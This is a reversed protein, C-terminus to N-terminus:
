RLTPQQAPHFVRLTVEFTSGRGQGESHVQLQGGHAEILRRAIALGLGLGGHRRSSSGDGQRFPEFLQHATRPDLGPGSDSIEIVAREGTQREWARVCGGPPTFKIANELIHRLAVRLGAQSGLVWVTPADVSGPPGVPPAHELTIDAASASEGLGEVLAAMLEHVDVQEWEEPARPPEAAALLEEVLALQRRANRDIIALGREIEAPPMRTTRLLETWGLIANLPTRLEHSVTALFEEKLRGTDTPPEAAGPTASATRRGVVAGMVGSLVLLGAVM